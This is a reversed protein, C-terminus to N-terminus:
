KKDILQKESSKVAGSKKVSSKGAATRKSSKTKSIKSSKSNDAEAKEAKTREEIKDAVRIENIVNKDDSMLLYICEYPLLKFDYSDMKRADIVTNSEKKTGGYKKWASDLKVVWTDEHKFKLEYEQNRDSFNFIAIVKHKEGNKRLMIYVCKQEQHCELWEFNDRDYDDWLASHKLYFKNLDTMFLAFNRHTEYDLLNWDIERNEDFERFHGIEGGMFNLKKGPHAYMYMYLARAQDFKNDGYMKQLITAKGHVNEDHSFPLLFKETFFYMMSFTLKHYCQIREETTKKFYDLTDNMFGMDWKYDFGLGGESVPKTVDPYATSDEAILLANKHFIKLGANMDKLFNLSNPNVGRNSNGMWYILRSVADMRLGDFHYESLWYNACSQLFSRVEGRSHNFNYSGWESHEVDNGPYEYLYTGDYKALGYYDVAFHVPVFDLIVGIENEHCKNVFYKVDNVEGYRSTPCYFGTNQYGWSNDLPYESIPMLEIANYGHEKVYPILLDALERYNYWDTQGPGKKRFSGAAVEYINLPKTNDALQHTMWGEDNFKFDDMDRIISASAPRLESGYGYPDCHDVYSGDKSYIRFKYMQGPEADKVTIGWFGGGDERSMDYESWSNFEGILAIRAANPAFTGFYTGRSSYHAGLQKYADFSHGMYFEHKDM